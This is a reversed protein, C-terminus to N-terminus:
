GRGLMRVAHADVRMELVGRESVTSAGDVLDTWRAEDGLSVRAMVEAPGANIVFVVRATGEADEHVAVHAGDPDAAWGSLGLEALAAAVATDAIAPDSGAVVDVAGLVDAALPRMNEDLTRATPGITVRAGGDAAERLARALADDFGGSTVCVIWRADRLAPAGDEGGVIAYPIGRAELAQEFSRLMTEAEIVFAPGDERCAERPGQGFLAFGAPSLPGFAHMVRALRRETRPVCLRVPVRRRLRHFGVAELAASLRTWFTAFPRRAGHRDVPAGIWRDREVAMFVNYGRLGYALACLTAFRSDRELMPPFYPPFGAGLECAFAPVGLGESRVALETTRRAIVARSERSAAHYYDLGCFDVARGVLAANLPTADQAPPFNHCTPVELGAGRLAGAFRAFAAALMHEHFAAWDLHRALGDRGDFRKPPEIAAFRDGEVAGYVARLTEVTGYRERLFDRYRAVADPHYDQDYAGDRFYLAGENDIQALVIPGAPWGLPALLTGVRGLWSSAEDLYAESAHSPVPFMRPPVPLVVPHGGPGRAQCAPDWVIREPLGFWTLEANIHPGPRVLARLGLDHALRLFGVVDLRPDHEGFDLEGAAREHVGWPVYVDVLGLGMGRVAQLCARWDSPELRWYHVAGARLPLHEETAGSPLVLGAPALRVRVVEGKSRDGASTLTPSVISLDPAHLGTKPM